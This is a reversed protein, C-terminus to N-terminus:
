NRSKIQKMALVIVVLTISSAFILIAYKITDTNQNNENNQKSPTNQTQAGITEVYESEDSIASSKKEEELKIETTDIATEVDESTITASPENDIASNETKEEPNEGTTTTGGTTVGGTTVSGATNTSVISATNEQPVPNTTKNSNLVSVGIVALCMCAMCVAGWGISFQLFKGKEANKEKKLKEKSDIEISRVIFKDDIKNFEDILKFKRM